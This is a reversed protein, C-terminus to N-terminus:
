QGIGGGLAVLDINIAQVNSSATSGTARADVISGNQTALMVDHRNTADAPKTSVVTNVRLDGSVEDIFLSNPASATLVGSTPNSSAIPLLHGPVRVHHRSTLNINVGVVNCHTSTGGVGDLISGSPTATLTVDDTRSRILGARLDGSDEHLTVPGAV